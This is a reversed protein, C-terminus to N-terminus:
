GLRNYKIANTVLNILVQKLRRRDALLARGDGPEVDNRFRVGQEDARPRLLTLVEAIVPGRPTPAITVPLHGSELGTLDLLDDLLERLHTGGHRIQEDQARQEPTLAELELLQAFGLVANLPTRLEHSARSLF